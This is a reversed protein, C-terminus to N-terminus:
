GYYLSSSLVTCLDGSPQHFYAVLDSLSAFSAQWTISYSGSDLWKYKIPYHVVGEMGRLSLVFDGPTTESERILFSGPSNCDKM